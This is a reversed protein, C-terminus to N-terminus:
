KKMNWAQNPINIIMAQSSDINDKRRLSSQIHFSLNWPLRESRHQSRTGISVSTELQLWCQLARCFMKSASTFEPLMNFAQVSCVNRGSPFLGHFRQYTSSEAQFTNKARAHLLSANSCWVNLEEKVWGREVAQVWKRSIKNWLRRLPPFM